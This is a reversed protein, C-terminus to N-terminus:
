GSVAATARAAATSSSSCGPPQGRGPRDGHPAPARSRTTASTPTSRWATSATSSGATRSWDRVSRSRRGSVTRSSSRRCEAATEDYLAMTGDRYLALGERAGEGSSPATASSSAPTASATTTVTSRSSRTSRRPSPARYRSSTAASSTTRSRRGCHPPTPSSSTPSSRLDGPRLRERGGDHLHRDDRPREHLDHGLRHRRHLGDRGLRHGPQGRVCQRVRDRRPRHPVPRGGLRVRRRRPRPHRHRRRPPRPPDDEGPVPDESSAEDHDHWGHPSGPQAAATVRGHRAWSRPAPAPM